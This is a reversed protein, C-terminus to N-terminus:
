SENPDVWKSLLAGAESPNNKIMESIQDAVQRSQLQGEDLEVGVMGGDSTEAEGFVEEDGGMSPPAGAIEEVSPLDQKKTAKRVMGFMLGLSLLALGGVALTKVWDPGLWALMGVGPQAMAKPEPTSGDPYMAVQVEGPNQSQILPSVQQRITDLRDDILPQLDQNTPDEAEPNNQEYLEVFYSRPVNIAVNIQQTQHGSMQQNTREQLLPQRYTTESQETQETTGGGGGGAINTGTNARAGPQGGQEMDQRTTEQSSESELPESESYQWSQQTQQAVNSTRVTVAVIVDPIYQLAGSLKKKYYREEQRVLERLDDASAKAPDNVTYQQGRNSDIITVNQPTMEAVSGSVLGAIAAVREDSMSEGGDLTVSVSASPQVHTEGFGQDDPM